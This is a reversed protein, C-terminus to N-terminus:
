DELAWDGMAKMNAINRNMREQYGVFIAAQQQREKYETLWGEAREETHHVQVSHVTEATGDDLAIPQTRAVGFLDYESGVDASVITGRQPLAVYQKTM